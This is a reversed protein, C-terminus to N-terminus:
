DNDQHSFAMFHLNDRLAGCVASAAASAAAALWYVLTSAPMSVIASAVASVAASIPWSELLVVSAAKASTWACAGAVACAAALVTLATRAIALGRSAGACSPCNKSHTEWVDFLDKDHMRPPLGGAEPAYPVHSGIESHAGNKDLWRRFAISMKDVPTPIFCAQHWDVGSRRKEDAVTQEQHHLFVADQQIFKTQMMHLLWTPVFKAVHFPGVGAPGFGEPYSGDDNPMTLTNVLARTWGPKTPTAYLALISRGGEVSQTQLKMLCPPQFHHLSEANTPDLIDPPLLRYKLDHAQVDDDDSPSVREWDFPKADRYRNGVIGHHSVPVHSSDTTNEIFYEFGYPLDRMAWVGTIGKSKEAHVFDELVRPPTGAARLSVDAGGEREGWVWVVDHVVQVPRVGRLCSRESALARAQEFPTAQPIHVCRGEGDFRWGHYSCLLTGDKEVRGESMPALRHPCLDNAAHWNEGDHWLVINVGLLTAKHPRSKDTQTDVLMPYWQRQWDFPPPEDNSLADEEAVVVTSGWPAGSDADKPPPTTPVRAVRIPPTKGSRRGRSLRAGAHPPAKPREAGALGTPLRYRLLAVAAM